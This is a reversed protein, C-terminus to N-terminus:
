HAYLYAVMDRAGREDIGTVPMATNPSYVRPQLIFRIVNEPTNPLTGAVYVRQALGVLPPGVRGQAGPVGPISHCGACGFQRALAPAREPDGGTMKVSREVVERKTDVFYEAVAGAAVLLAMGAFALVTVRRSLMSM